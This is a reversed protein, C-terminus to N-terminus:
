KNSSRSPYIDVLIATLMGAILGAKQAASMTETSFCFVVLFGFLYGQLFGIVFDTVIRRYIMHTAVEVDAEQDQPRRRQIEFRIVHALLPAGEEVDIDDPAAAEEDANALPSRVASASADSGRAARLNALLARRSAPPLNAAFDFTEAEQQSMRGYQPLPQQLTALLWEDEMRYWYDTDSEDAARGRFSNNLSAAHREIMPRFTTRLAAIDDVSMAQEAMLRDLGRFNGESTSGTNTVDNSQTRSSVNNITSTSTPPAQSVVVHIFSGEKVGFKSLEALPPELLKGSCILRIKSNMAISSSQDSNLVSRVSEQLQQVTTKAGYKLSITHEKSSRSDKLRVNMSDEASESAADACEMM